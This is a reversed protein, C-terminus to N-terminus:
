SDMSLSPPSKQLLSDDGRALSPLSSTFLPPSLLHLPLFISEKVTAGRTAGLSCWDSRHCGLDLWHLKIPLESMPDTSGSIKIIVVSFGYRYFQGLRPLELGERGNKSINSRLYEGSKKYLL